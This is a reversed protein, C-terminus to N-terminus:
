RQKANEREREREREKNLMEERERGWRQKANERETEREKNLM